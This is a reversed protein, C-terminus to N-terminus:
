APLEEPHLREEIREEVRARDYLVCAAIVVPVSLFFLLVGWLFLRPLSSARETRTVAPGSVGFLETTPNLQRSAATYIEGTLKIARVVATFTSDLKQQILAPPVNSGSPPQSLSALLARDFAVATELPVTALSAERISDVLKQRYERDAIQDSIQMMRDIFSESVQPVVSDSSPAPVPKQAGETQVEPLPSPRNSEYASLTALLADRVLRAAHLRREDFDLQAQLFQRMHALRAPETPRSALLLPEVDFRMLDDLRLRIESLSLAETTARTTEAGPIESIKIVNEIAEATKSRMIALAEFPDRNAVLSRDLALSSLLPVRYELVRKKIAAYRAWEALTDALVKSIVTQPIRKLTAKQVFVIAYDSKSISQRKQEYESQIRDRDITTLRPDSLRSQYERVLQELARNWELVVISRKFDNLSIYEGLRNQNYVALLVPDATIEASSFKSGDPYFGGAAGEFNLRFPMSVIEQAPSGLYTLIAGIAYLTMIAAVVVVVVWRYRRVTIIFHGLVSHEVERRPADPTNPEQTSHM